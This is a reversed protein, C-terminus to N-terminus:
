NLVRFPHSGPGYAFIICFNLTSFTNGLSCVRTVPRLPLVSYLRIGCVHSRRDQSPLLSTWEISVNDDEYKLSLSLSADTHMPRRTEGSVRADGSVMEGMQTHGPSKGVGEAATDYLGVYVSGISEVIEM